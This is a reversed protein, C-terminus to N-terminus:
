SMWEKTTVIIVRSCWIDRVFFLVLTINGKKYFPQWLDRNPPKRCFQVSPLSRQWKETCNDGRGWWGLDHDAIRSSSLAIIENSHLHPEKRRLLLGINWKRGLSYQPCCVVMEYILVRKLFGSWKPLFAFWFMNFKFHLDFTLVRFFMMNNCFCIVTADLVM